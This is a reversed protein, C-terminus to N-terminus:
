VCSGVKLKPWKILWKKEKIRNKFRQIKIKDKLFHPTPNIILNFIDSYGYPAIFEIENNIGLRVIIASATDPFKSIADNLSSYPLENNHLHMRAQNKVSWEINPSINILKHELEIDRSKDLNTTNFYFVDIDGFESSVLHRHKHDWIINRIFGGGIWLEEDKIQSVFKLISLCKKNEELISLIKQESEDIKSTSNNM